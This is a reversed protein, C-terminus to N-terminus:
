PPKRHRARDIHMEGDPDVMIRYRKPTDGKRTARWWVPAWLGLSQITLRKHLWHDPPQIITFVAEFDSRSEISFPHGKAAARERADQLGETLIERRRSDPITPKM